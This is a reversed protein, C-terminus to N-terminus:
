LQNKVVTFTKEAGNETTLHLLYVGTPLATTNIHTEADELAGSTVAVGHINTLSYKGRLNRNLIRIQENFPNPTVVVADFVSDEVSAPTEVTVAVEATKTADATSTAVIKATGASVGTVEGSTENVQAVKDNSTSWKVKKEVTGVVKVTAEFTSKEGVTLPTKSKTIAVSKVGAVTVECTATKGGEDTTVTITTTGLSVPTVLGTESVTAVEENSSKCTYKNNLANHPQVAITLQQTAGMALEAKSDVTVGTVLSAITVEKAVKKDKDIVHGDEFKGGEPILIDCGNTTLTPVSVFAAGDEGGKAIVKANNLTVSIGSTPRENGIAIHGTVNLTIDSVTLQVGGDLYLGVEGDTSVITLEGSGEIKTSKGCLLGAEQTSKLENTGSVVITLNEIDNSIASTEDTTVTVDKMTLTNETPDYQLIGGEKTLKVGKIGSLKKYNFETVQTDAILLEYVRAPVIEVEKAVSGKADVIQGGSFSGLEPTKIACGEPSFSTLQSIAAKAGTAKVTANTLNLAADGDGTIGLEKGSATLAINEVFCTANAIYVAKEAEITLSGDGELSVVKDTYLGEDKAKLLNTGSLLITLGDIKNHIANKMSTVDITVDKMTLTPGESANPDYKCEGSPAVKVGPFGNGASINSCNASSVQKGAIWLDYDEAMAPATWLLTCCLLAALWGMTQLKRIM